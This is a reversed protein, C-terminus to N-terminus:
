VGGFHWGVGTRCNDDIMDLAATREATANAEIAPADVILGNFNRRGTDQLTLL